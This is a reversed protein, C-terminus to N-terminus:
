EDDGVFECEDSLSLYINIISVPLTKIDIENGALTLSDIEVAEISTLTLSRPVGYDDEVMTATFVIETLGDNYTARCNSM